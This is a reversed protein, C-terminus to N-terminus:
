GAYPPPAALSEITFTAGTGLFQQVGYEVPMPDGHFHFSVDHYADDPGSLTRSVLRGEHVFRVTDMGFPTLETMTVVIKVVHGILAPIRDDLPTTIETEMTLNDVQVCM